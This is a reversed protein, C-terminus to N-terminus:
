LAHSNFRFSSIKNTPVSPVTTIQRAYLTYLYCNFFYLVHTGFGLLKQIPISYKTDM